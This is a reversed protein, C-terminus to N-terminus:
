RVGGVRRTEACAFNVVYKIILGSEKFDRLLM